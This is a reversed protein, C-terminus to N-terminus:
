WGGAAPGAGQRDRLVLEVQLASLLGFLRAVGMREPHTEALSVAKQAVGMQSALEAQTLGRQLRYGRLIAGLQHATHAPFANM